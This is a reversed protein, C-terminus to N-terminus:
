PCRGYSLSLTSSDSQFRLLWSQEQGPEGM